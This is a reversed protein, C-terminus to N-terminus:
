DLRALDGEAVSMRPKSSVTSCGASLEGVRLEIGPQRKATVPEVVEQDGRLISHHGTKAMKQGRDRYHSQYNPFFVSSSERMRAATAM